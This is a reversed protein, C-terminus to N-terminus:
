TRGNSIVYMTSSQQPGRPLTVGEGLRAWRFGRVTGGVTGGFGPLPSSRALCSPSYYCCRGAAAAALAGALWWWKVERTEKVM